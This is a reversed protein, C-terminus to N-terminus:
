IEIQIRQTVPFSCCLLTEHKSLDIREIVGIMKVEGSLIKAKCTDCSGTQCSYPLNIGNDLYADLITKGKQVFIKYECDNFHMEVESDIVEILDQENVTLEFDESFISHVSVGINELSEIIMKKMQSPGCIFHQSEKLPNHHNLTYSKVFDSNIRGSLSNEVLSEYDRSFFLNLVLQEKYNIALDMLENLFISEERNSNGYILHIKISQCSILVQNLISYIPTIGSGAAWLFIQNPTNEQDFLFEGMPKSVEIIDGVNIKDLLYNSVIGNPVRKITIKLNEDIAPSSSFSYARKYKRGNISLSLTIYQGAIYKIRRLGPQKFCFTLANKTEQKIQFVKLTYPNM